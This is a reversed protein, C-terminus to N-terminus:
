ALTEKESSTRLGDALSGASRHIEINPHFNQNVYGGGSMSGGMSVVVRQGPLGSAGAIYGTSQGQGPQSNYHGAIKYSPAMSKISVGAKDLTKDSYEFANFAKAPATTAHSRNFFGVSKSIPARVEEM